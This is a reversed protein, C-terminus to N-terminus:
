GRPPDAVLLRASAQSRNIGTVMVRKQRAHEGSVISVSRAPISLAGAIVRILEANAAGEVPPAKLRVLLADGRTGDIGSRSARPIVRVSIVVGGPTSSIM